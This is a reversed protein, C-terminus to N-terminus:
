EQRSTVAALVLGRESADRERIARFLGEVGELYKQAADSLPGRGAMVRIGHAEALRVNAVYNLAEQELRSLEKAM